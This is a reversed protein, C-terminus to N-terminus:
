LTFYCEYDDVIHGHQAQTSMRKEDLGEPIDNIKDFGMKSYSDACISVDAIKCLEPFEPEKALYTGKWTFFVKVKSGKAEAAKSIGLVHRWNKRSTVFIGVSKAM